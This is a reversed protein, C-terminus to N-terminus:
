KRRELIINLENIYEQHWKVVSIEGRSQAVDRQGENIKILKGIEEKTLNQYSSM